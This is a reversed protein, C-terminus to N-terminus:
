AGTIPLNMSSTEFGLRAAVNAAAAVEADTPLDALVVHANVFDIHSDGNRDQLVLGPAFISELGSPDDQQAAFAWGTMVSVLLAVAAFGINRRSRPTTM